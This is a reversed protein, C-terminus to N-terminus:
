LERCSPRRRFFCHFYESIYPFLVSLEIVLQGPSIKVPALYYLAREVTISPHTHRRQLCNM